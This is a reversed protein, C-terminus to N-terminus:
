WSVEETDESVGYPKLAEGEITWVRWRDLSMKEFEPPENAFVIVHPSNMLVMSSEYKSSAFCGNKIEEIGTYSVYKLNSRPVDFVVIKPAPEQVGPGPCVGSHPWIVKAIQCKMDAAKGACIIAGMEACLYKAFASKGEGGKRTWVWNIVRDDACDEFTNKLELQWPRLEQIVTLPETVVGHVNFLVPETGEERTDSKTCYRVNQAWGANMTEVHLKQVKGGAKLARVVPMLRMKTKLSFCGQLHPTGEKKGIEKQFAYKKSGISGLNAVLSEIGEETWNNFTFTFNYSPSKRQPRAPQGTNGARAVSTEEDIPTSIESM